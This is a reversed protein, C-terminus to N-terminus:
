STCNNQDIKSDDNTNLHRVNTKNFSIKEQNTELFFFDFMVIQRENSKSRDTESAKINANVQSEEM